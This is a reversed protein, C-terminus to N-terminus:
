WGGGGGGGGGGGSSGGGGSGSSSGPATSSSSIAGSFSSGLSSAFGSLGSAGSLKSGHYWGVGAAAAAAAAPGVAQAFRDAWTKEVGLALAWPLNRQFEEFTLPPAQALALEDREAVGLYLRMGEAWDMLRRGEPTPAKMLHLFLANLAVLAAMLAVFALGVQAGLVFLAAIEGILFPLSFVSLGLATKIGGNRRIVDRWAATVLTLLFAVGVSWILLWLLLGLVDKSRGPAGLALTALALVGLSALGGRVIPARNLRFWRKGDQTELAKRHADLAARIRTHQSQELTLERERGLLGELLAEEAPPLTLPAAGASRRFLRYQSKEQHIEVAGRLGLDVLDAAVCRNDWRMNYVRRLAGPTLEPPPEYRPIIVGRHPDRGIRHWRRHYYVGVGILGLLLLLAGRNDRLLWFGRELVGPRAVAGAPFSAVISLGEGADLARTTRFSAQSPGDIEAAYDRGQEGQRGTYAEIHIHAVPVDGPWRVRASATDIPFIWGNGTVNWYLEDRDGFFGLQRNSRYRLTYTHEGPAVYRSDSGFYVRVGNDLAESRWPEAQGDRAVALVEFDVRLRNGHRDRYRTPFDRYIGHRIQQNEALVRITETVVMSADTAVVIDSHFDLIREHAQASLATWLACLAAALWKM